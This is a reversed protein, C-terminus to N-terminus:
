GGYYSRLINLNWPCFAITGAVVGRKANVPDMPYVTSMHYMSEVAAAVGQNPLINCVRGRDVYAATYGLIDGPAYLWPGLYQALNPVFPGLVNLGEPCSTAVGIAVITRVDEPSETSNNRQVEHIASNISGATAGQMQRFSICPYNAWAVAVAAVQVSNAHARPLVSPSLGTGLLIALSMMIASIIVRGRQITM